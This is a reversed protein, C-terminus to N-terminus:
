FLMKALFLFESCHHSIVRNSYPNVSHFHVNKQMLWIPWPTVYDGKFICQKYLWM